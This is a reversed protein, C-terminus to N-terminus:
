NNFDIKIEKKLPNEGIVGKKPSKGRYGRKIAFYLYDRFKYFIFM